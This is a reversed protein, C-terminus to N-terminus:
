CKTGRVVVFSGTGHGEVPAEVGEPPMRILTQWTRIATYGVKSLLGVIESPSHFSAMSFFKDSEKRITYEKGIPSERDIMAVVIFGSRRTIRWAEEFTRELSSVFCDVCAFLTVDYLEDAIPLEEAVADIVSLGRTRAIRAMGEAPEVGDTFGLASAFRGTGTGIEIGKLGEPLAARIALIESQFIDAHSDFWADYEAANESYNIISTNM